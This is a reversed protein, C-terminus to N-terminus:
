SYHGGSKFPEDLDSRALELFPFGNVETEDPSLFEKPAKVPRSEQTGRFGALCIAEGSGIRDHM